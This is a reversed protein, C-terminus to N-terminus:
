RHYYKDVLDGWGLLKGFLYAQGALFSVVALVLWLENNITLDPLM